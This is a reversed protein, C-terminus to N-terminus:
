ICNLRGSSTQPIIRSIPFPTIHSTLLQGTSKLAQIFNPGGGPTAYFDKFLEWEYSEIDIKLMDVWMHGLDGMIQDLTQLGAPAHICWISLDIAGSYNGHTMTMGAIKLNRIVRM